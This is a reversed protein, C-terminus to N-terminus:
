EKCYDLITRITENLLEKALLSKLKNADEKNRLLINIGAAAKHGGGQGGINKSVRKAIESASFGKDLLEKSARISARIEKKKGGIVIAVDAGIGILTRAVSAEFASVETVAIIYRCVEFISSRYIGKFRAIKESYQTKEELLSLATNYDGGQEILWASIKFTLPSSIAFRRTDFLIGCLALTSLKKGLAINSKRAIDAVITTTSPEQLVIKFTTKECIDGCPIHHDIVLIEASNQLLTKNKGLLMSSSTDCVVLAYPRRIEVSSTWNINLKELIRKSVKSPPDPFLITTNLRNEDLIKKVLFVSAIADPDPNIHTLIIIQIDKPLSNIYEFFINM